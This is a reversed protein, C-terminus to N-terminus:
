SVRAKALEKVRGLIAVISMSNVLLTSIIVAIAFALWGWLITPDEYAFSVRLSEGKALAPLDLGIAWTNAIMTKAPLFDDVTSKKIKAKWKSHFGENWIFHSKPM